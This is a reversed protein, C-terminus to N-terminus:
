DRMRASYEQTTLGSCIAVETGLDQGLAVPRFAIKDEADAIAVFQGGQQIVLVNGPVLVCASDREVDLLMVAVGTLTESRV